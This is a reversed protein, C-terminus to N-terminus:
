GKAGRWFLGIVMTIVIAGFVLTLYNFSGGNWDTFSLHSALSSLISHYLSIIMNFFDLM